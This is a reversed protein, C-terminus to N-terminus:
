VPALEIATPPTNLIENARGPGIIGFAELQQVGARTEPRNLDVFTAVALDAAMVRLVAALQRQQMPASPNDLSALEIAVKEAQTFRNRFALVTIKNKNVLHANSAIWADIAEKSPMPLGAEWKVNEYVTPDSYCSVEVGPFGLGIATVYDMTM